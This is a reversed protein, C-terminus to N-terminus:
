DEWGDVLNHIKYFITKESMNGVCRDKEQGNEVLILTPFSMVNYDKCKDINNSGNIIELQIDYGMAEFKKIVNDLKRKFPKCAPCNDSIFLVAKIMYEEKMFLENIIKDAGEKERPIRLLNRINQLISNNVKLQLKIDKLEKELQSRKEELEKCQDLLLM